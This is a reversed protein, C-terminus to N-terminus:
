KMQFFHIFGYICAMLLTHPLFVLLTVFNIYHCCYNKFFSPSLSFPHLSLSLSGLSQIESTSEGLYYMFFEYQNKELKEFTIIDANGWPELWVSVCPSLNVHWDTNRIIASCLGGVPCYSVWDLPASLLSGVPGPPLERPSGLSCTSEHGHYVVDASHLSSILMVEASALFADRGRSPKLASSM